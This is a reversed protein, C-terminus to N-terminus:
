EKTDTYKDLTKELKSTLGSLGFANFMSHRFNDFKDQPLCFEALVLIDKMVKKNETLIEQELNIREEPTLM